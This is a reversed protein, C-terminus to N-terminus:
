GEVRIQYRNPIRVARKVRVGPAVRAVMESVRVWDGQCGVIVSQLAGMPLQLLNKDTMLTDDAIANGREQAVLRYESEYEWPKAKALVTRLSDEERNSYLPILPYEDFYECSLASCFIENRLSFELCVGRHSDAYHAWMLLNNVDPGLCYVRYRSANTLAVGESIESIYKAAQLKDKRLVESMRSIDSESMNPIRRRCLEVAWTVHKENEVPDDLIDTNFHPKCDWPDNFDSPSSCYLSNTMLLAELRDANFSQWHYLVRHGDEWATKM